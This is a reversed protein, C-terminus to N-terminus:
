ARFGSPRRPAWFQWRPIAVAGTVNVSQARPAATTPM